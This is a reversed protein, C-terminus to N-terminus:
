RFRVAPLVGFGSLLWYLTVVVVIVIVIRRITDELPLLALCVGVIILFFVIALLSM